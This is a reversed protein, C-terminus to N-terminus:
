VKRKNKSKGGVPSSVRLSVSEDSYPEAVSIMPSTDFIDFGSVIYNHKCEIGATSLVFSINATAKVDDDSPEPLGRPHNHIVIVSSAGLRKASDIIKRPVIGAINVSGDCIHECSIFKESKDFLM